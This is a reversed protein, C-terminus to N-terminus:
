SHRQMVDRTLHDSLIRTLRRAAISPEPSFDSFLTNPNLREEVSVTFIPKHAPVDYWHNHKGLIPESCHITVVRLDCGCRIAVQAAGRQLTIAQGPRTRTGEPFILIQAGHDLRQRCDNLFTDAQNNILYGAARIVGSFFPNSLVDAKVVCDLDPIVSALMVYDILTPHNAVILCGQDNKLKEAGNIRFQLVGLANAAWLFFRFARSILRRAIRQRRSKSQLTLLACLILTLCLGGLGFMLFCFGTMCVRWAWNIRQGLGLM